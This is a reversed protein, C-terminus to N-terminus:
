CGTRIEPVVERWVAVAEDLPILDHADLCYRQFEADQALSLNQLASAVAWLFTDADSQPDASGWIVLDDGDAECRTCSHCDYTESLYWSRTAVDWRASADRVIDESGCHRCRPIVASAGPPPADPDDPPVHEIVIACTLDPVRANSYTSRDALARAAVHIDADDDISLIFQEVAFPEGDSLYEIRVAYARAGTVSTTKM